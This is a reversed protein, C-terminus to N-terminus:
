DSKRGYFQLYFKTLFVFVLANLLHWLAHGQFLTSTPFCVVKRLDLYWVTGAMAYTALTLLFYRYSFDRDHRTRLCIIFETVAFAAVLYNFLTWSSRRGASCAFPSSVAM